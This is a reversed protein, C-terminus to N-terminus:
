SSRIEYKATLRTRSFSISSNRADYAPDDTAFAVVRLRM